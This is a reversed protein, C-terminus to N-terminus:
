LPGPGTVARFPVGLLEAVARLDKARHGTCLAWHHGIGTAAWADTWEGPDFGFDVRSTTNGIELLPGPVVEGESVVFPFTGDADQGIGFTTVPGSRPM